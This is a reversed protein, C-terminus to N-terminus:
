KGFLLNPLFLCIKPFIILLILVFIDCPIFPWIGSFIEQITTEKSAVGKLAYVNLGVPPTVAAIESLKIAIVGFWIPNYGLQTIVPFIVPLTLAFVGTPIMIMGLLFYIFLIGALIIVRPANLEIVSNTIIEPLRTLGLARSLYISSAIIMFVMATTQASERLSEKIKELNNLKRLCIGFIFTLLAGVADAETPSFFGGYMGGLIIFSIALIPILQKFAIIRQNLTIKKEGEIEPALEPNKKVRYIISISYTIATLIGPLVGAAFLRGVSQDTFMAYILFMNSPPIMCAFTGASAICGLSLSRKYKYREMEPLALKGFVAATALSSGSIAGFAASAFCTCIALSGPLGSTIKHLGNYANEAFGGRAGFAGMLIFLPLAVFVPTNISYYMSEGLLILASKFGIILTSALLGTILFSIGIQFRMALFFLLICIAFYGINILSMKTEKRKVKNIQM